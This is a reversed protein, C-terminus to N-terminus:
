DAHGGNVQHEPHTCGIFEHVYTNGHWGLETVLGEKSSYYGDISLNKITTFLPDSIESMKALSAAVDNADLRALGARLLAGLKPDAAAKDDVYFPVGADSAGPTDTRPIIADVVATLLAFEAANFFAAHRDQAALVPMAAIACLAERRNM